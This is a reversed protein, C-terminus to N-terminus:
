LAGGAMAGAISGIAAVIVISAALLAFRAVQPRDKLVTAFVHPPSATVAPKVPDAAAETKIDATTSTDGSEAAAVHLAADARSIEIAPAADTTPSPTQELDTPTGM